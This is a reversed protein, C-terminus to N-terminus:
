CSVEAYKLDHQKTRRALLRARLGFTNFIEQHQRHFEEAMEQRQQLYVDVEQRHQLYYSIVAYVDALELSPFMEVIEEPTSGRYFAAIVVDLIVRTKGIRVTGTEDVRLPVPVTATNFSFTNEAIVASM